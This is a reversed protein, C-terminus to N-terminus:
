EVVIKYTNGPKVGTRGDLGNLVMFREVPRDGVAIMRASLSEATDGPKATVMAIRLPKVAAAEEPSLVRFSEIALRFARDVDGAMSRAALIFRYTASGIQIAAM